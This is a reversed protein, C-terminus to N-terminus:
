ADGHLTTADSRQAAMFDSHSIENIVVTREIDFPLDDRQARDARRGELADMLRGLLDNLPPDDPPIPLSGLQSCIKGLWHAPVEDVAVGGQALLANELAALHPLVERAGRVQDLLAGLSFAMLRGRLHVASVHAATSNSTPM